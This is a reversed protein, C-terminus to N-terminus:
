MNMALGLLLAAGGILLAQQYAEDLACNKEEAISRVVSKIDEDLSDWEKKTM